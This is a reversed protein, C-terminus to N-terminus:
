WGARGAILCHVMGDVWEERERAPVSRNNLMVNGYWGRLAVNFVEAPIQPKHCPVGDAEACEIIFATILEIGLRTSETAAAGIEPLMHSASYILRNIELFDGELSFALARNAYRTLGAKLDPRGEAHLYAAASMREIQQGMIARFLQEISPYRALLTTRSVQAARAISRMSAGGFGNAVFERLAAALIRQEIEQVDDSTPRGRRRPSPPKSRTRTIENM